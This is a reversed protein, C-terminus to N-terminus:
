APGPAPEVAIPLTKLGRAGLFPRWPVEGVRRPNRLRRAILHLLAMALVPLAPQAM